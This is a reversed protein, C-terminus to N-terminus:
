RDRAAVEFTECVAAWVRKADVGAALAQNITRGGLASLVHDQALSHAYSPGFRREMREWFDTLRM